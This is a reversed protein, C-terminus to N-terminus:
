PKQSVSKKRMRWLCLAIQVVTSCPTAFCVLFLSVPEMRSFMWALPTRVLFAGILGQAMVFTTDGCGNFYGLYCFLFSVLITDFSYAKLCQASAAIVDRDEAFIASLASGFFFAAIALLIGISLSVGMGYRMARKAREPQRAGINQAVFASLAQNFASPMLMVFGCIRDSVGVGASVILGLSNTITLVILFSISVLLDQLAIPIGLKLTMKLSAPDRRLYERGFPLGLGRRRIVLLCILVSVLQAAVTAIAAGKAGMRYVAVLLFDGAINCVCAIGVALLPTRSDGMGRFLSGFVNYAVICLAGTGCFFVYDVTEQLAEAPANMLRSLPRALGCLTATLLLGIVLFMRVATGLAHGAGERDGAGLRQGILVTSGASLSAVFGIVTYMINSGTSVGSVSAADAFHGVVLLDVASYLSQLVLAGLIPLVFRILPKLISGSTFSLETREM